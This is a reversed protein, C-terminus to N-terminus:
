LDRGPELRSYTLGASELLQTALRASVALGTANLLGDHIALVTRSSAVRAYDVADALRLWPAHLPMLLVPVPQPPPTFSDGPHFVEDDFCYAVNSIRPIDDHIVAHTEGHVTVRFGAVALEEGAAVETLREALEPAQRRVAAAAGAGAYIPADTRRLADPDLHDAHEHTVFVGVVGDVAEPETFTGPDIVVARGDRELRVAAHGLKTIRM